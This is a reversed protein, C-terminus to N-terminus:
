KNAYNCGAITIDFKMNPYYAVGLWKAYEKKVLELLIADESCSEYCWDDETLKMVMTYMSGM